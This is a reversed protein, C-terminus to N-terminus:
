TSMMNENEQFYVQCPIVWMLGNLALALEHDDSEKVLGSIQSVVDREESLGLCFKANISHEAFELGMKHTIKFFISYM